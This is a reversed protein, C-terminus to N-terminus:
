RQGEFGIKTKVNLFRNDDAKLGRAYESALIAVAAGTGPKSNGIVNRRFVLDHHHGRIVISAQAEGKASVCNDVIRNDEFVNRHAGMAEDENRFFVGAAGNGSCTNNRFVNDSDKHGISIGFRQNGRFENNEFLGYKVRWCVFMGDNGNGISRNRRM